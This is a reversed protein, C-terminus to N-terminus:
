KAAPKPGSRRQDIAAVFGARDKKWAADLQASFGAAVWPVRNAITGLLKDVQAEKGSVSTMKGNRSWLVAEYTKGTPIFNVSHRTIKKYVWVLDEIRALHTGFYYPAVVWSATLTSAGFKEGGGSMETDLQAGYQIVAQQGGLSKVIPHATFDSTRQAWKALNWVALALLPLSLGLFWYGNERYDVTDLMFPLLVAQREPPLEKRLGTIVDGPVEVLAGELHKAKSGQKAKVVLARDGVWTVLFDAKVSTVKGSDDQEVEQYGSEFVEPVDFSVFNRALEDASKLKAIQAPDTPATGRFWNNMYNWNAGLLVAVFALVCLNAILLRNNARRVQNGIFGEWVATRGERRFM